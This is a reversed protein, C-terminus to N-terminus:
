KAGAKWAKTYADCFAAFREMNEYHFRSEIFRIAASEPRDLRVDVYGAANGHEIMELTSMPGPIPSSLIPRSRGLEAYLGAVTPANENAAIRDETSLGIRDLRARQEDAFDNAPRRTM